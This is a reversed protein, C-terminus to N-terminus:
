IITLFAIATHIDPLSQKCIYLLKATFTHVNQATDDHLKETDPNITFLRATAPTASGGAMDQPADELIKRVYEVM